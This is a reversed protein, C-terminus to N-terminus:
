AEARRDVLYRRLSEVDARLQDVARQAERDGIGLSSVAGLYLDARELQRIAVRLVQRQENQSRLDPLQLVANRM